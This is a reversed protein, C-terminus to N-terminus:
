LYMDVIANSYKTNIEGVVSQFDPNQKALKKFLSIFYKSENLYKQLANHSLANNGHENLLAYCSDPVNYGFQGCTLENTVKVNWARALAYLSSDSLNKKGDLQRIVDYYWGDYGFVPNIDFLGMGVENENYIELPLRESTISLNLYKSREIRQFENNGWILHNEVEVPQKLDTSSVFVALRFENAKKILMTYTRENGDPMKLGYLYKVYDLIATAKPMNVTPSLESKSDSQSVCAVCNLLLFSSIIKM